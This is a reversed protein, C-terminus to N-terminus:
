MLISNFEKSGLCGITLYVLPIKGFKKLLTKRTNEQIGIIHKPSIEVIKM